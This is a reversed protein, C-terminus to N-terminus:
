SKRGVTYMENIRKLISTTTLKANKRSGCFLVHINDYLGFEMLMKMMYKNTIKISGWKEEPIGSEEPFIMLDEMSFELVIYKHPFTKMREIEAMFRYKDQGLNTALEATSAKREICIKDELGVLSYDGTDLKKTVMGDCSHYRTKYKVFTYGDQERTDKIVTFPPAKKFTM